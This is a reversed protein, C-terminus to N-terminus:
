SRDDEIPVCVRAAALVSPVTAGSFHNFGADGVIAVLPLDRNVTGAEDLHAGGNSDDRAEHYAVDVNAALTTAYSGTSQASVTRALLLLAGAFAVFLRTQM